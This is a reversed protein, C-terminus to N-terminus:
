YLYSFQWRNELYVTAWKAAPLVRANLSGLDDRRRYSCSNFPPALCVLRFWSKEGRLGVLGGAARRGASRLARPFCRRDRQSLLFM